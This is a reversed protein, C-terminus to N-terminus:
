EYLCCRLHNNECYNITRDILSALISSQRSPRELLSNFFDAQNPSSPRSTAVVHPRINM